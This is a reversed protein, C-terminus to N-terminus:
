SRRNRTRMSGSFHLNQFRFAVAGGCPLAPTGNFRFKTTQPGVPGARSRLRRACVAGHFSTKPCGPVVSLSGSGWSGRKPSTEPTIARFLVLARGLLHIIPGQFSSRPKRSNSHSGRHSQGFCGFPSWRVTPRHLNDSPLWSTRPGLPRSTGLVCFRKSSASSCGDVLLFGRFCRADVRPLVIPSCRARSRLFGRCGPRGQFTSPLLTSESSLPFSGALLFSRLTMRRPCCFGSVALDVPLLWM